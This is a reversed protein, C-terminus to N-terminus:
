SAFRESHQSLSIYRLLIASFIWRLFYTKATFYYLRFLNVIWWHIKQVSKVVKYNKHKHLHRKINILSISFYKIFSHEFTWIFTYSYLIIHITFYTLFRIYYHLSLYDTYFTADIMWIVLLIISYFTILMSILICFFIYLFSLEVFQILQNRCFM